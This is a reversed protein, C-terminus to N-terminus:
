LELMLLLADEHGTGRRYYNPRCGYANFGLRDYLRQAALNSERVELYVVTIQQQRAAAFAQELLQGALGRGQWAPTVAVNLVHAEDLVWSMVLFGAVEGACELVQCRYSGQLSDAFSSRTWPTLQCAQEIAVVQDLDAEVMTRICLDVPDTRM